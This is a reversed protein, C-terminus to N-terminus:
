FPQNDAVEAEFPTLVGTYANLEGRHYGREVAASMFAAEGLADIVVDAAMRPDSASANCIPERVRSVLVAKKERFIAERDEDSCHWERTSVADKADRWLVPVAVGECILQARVKRMNYVTRRSIGASQALLNPSYAEDHDSDLGWAFQARDRTSLPLVDHSNSAISILRVEELSCQYVKVEVKRRGNELYALRRHHGHVLVLSGDTDVWVDLPAFKCGRRLAARLNKVQDNEIGRGRPQFLCPDLKLDRINVKRLTSGPLSNIINSMHHKETHHECALSLAFQVSFPHM